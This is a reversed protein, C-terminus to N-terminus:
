LKEKIWKQIEITKDIIEKCKEESVMKFLRDRYSPYRAEINLPIMEDFFAQKDDDMLKSLGCGDALRNLNHIYPPNDERKSCWYGKLIKELCQNCMFGVYLWRGTAYM